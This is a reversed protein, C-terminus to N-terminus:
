ASANFRKSMRVAPFSIGATMSIESREVAMSGFAAYLPEGALTTELDDSSILRDSGSEM